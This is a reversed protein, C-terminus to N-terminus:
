KCSSILCPHLPKHPVSCELKNEILMVLSYFLEIVLFGGGDGGVSREDAAFNWFHWFQIKKLIILLFIANFFMKMEFVKKLQQWDLFNIPTLKITKKYTLDNWELFELSGQFPRFFSFTLSGHYEKQAM